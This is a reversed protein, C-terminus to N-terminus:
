YDKLIENKLIGIYDGRKLAKREQVTPVESVENGVPADYNVFEEGSELDYVYINKPKEQLEIKVLPHTVIKTSAEESSPTQEQVYVYLDDGKKFISNVVLGYGSSQKEGAAISLTSSGSDYKFGKKTLSSMQEYDNISYNNYTKYSLFNGNNHILSYICKKGFDTKLKNIDISKTENKFKFEIDFFIKLITMQQKDFKIDYEAIKEVECPEAACVVKKTKNVKINDVDRHIEYIYSGSTYNLIQHAANSYDVYKNKLFLALFIVIIIEPITMINRILKKRKAKKIRDQQHSLSKLHADEEGSSNRITNNTITTERVGLSPSSQLEKEAEKAAKEEQKVRELEEKARKKDEKDEKLKDKFGLIKKKLNEIKEKQEKKKKSEETNIEMMNNNNNDM